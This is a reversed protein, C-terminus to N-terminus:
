SLDRNVMHWLNSIQRHEEVNELYSKQWELDSIRGARRLSGFGLSCAAKALLWHLRLLQM